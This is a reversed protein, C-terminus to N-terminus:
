NAKRVAYLIRETATALKVEKKVEPSHKTPKAAPTEELQKELEVNKLEVAEKEKELKEKDSSFMSKIQEIAENFEAKTVFDSEMEQEPEPEAVADKIEAIMGEEIVVLLKGAFEYEGVPLPVREDENVIFVPNGAEFADAELVTGNDLKEQALSVAEAEAEVEKVEEQKELGVVKLALAKIDELISTKDSM